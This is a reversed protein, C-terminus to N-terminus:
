EPTEATPSEIGLLKVDFVLMGQPADPRNRNAYALEAPIWFRTKEGTVMLPIGIQWGEILRNLPFSAPEGRLVSSDFMRGDTTWGTYHVIVIDEPRPHVSGEGPELVKYALGSPHRVADAPPAAVNEPAPISERQEAPERGAQQGSEGASECASLLLGPLALFAAMIIQKKM